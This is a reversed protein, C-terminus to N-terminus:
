LIIFPYLILSLIGFIMILKLIKSLQLFAKPNNAKALKIAVLLLPGLLLFLFYMVALNYHYLYTMSYYIIGAATLTIFAWIILKTKFIGLVIPATQLGMLRDGKVDQLDKILERIFTTIMAFLAYDFIVKLLLLHLGQNNKNVTPYLEFLPVILVALGVLLAVCLNGILLYKKLNASYIYNLLAAGILIAVLQPKHVWNALIFGLIVGIGNSWLYITYAQNITFTKTIFLRDPKNIKDAEIDFIDNIIYGGAAICCTALVLILFPLTTLSYDASFPIIIAWKIVCQILAIMLLNQWRVLGLFAKIIKM